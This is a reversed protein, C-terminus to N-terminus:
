GDVFGDKLLHSGLAVIEGLGPYVVLLGEIRVTGWVQIM